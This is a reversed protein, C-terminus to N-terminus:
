NYFNYINKRFYIYFCVSLYILFINSLVEWFIKIDGQKKTTFITLMLHIHTNGQSHHHHIYIDLSM